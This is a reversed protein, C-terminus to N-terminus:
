EFLRQHLAMWDQKTYNNPVKRGTPTRRELVLGRVQLLTKTEAYSWGKEEAAHSLEPPFKDITRPRSESHTGRALYDTTTDLEDAIALLKGMSVNRKGNEVESLFPVSIGALDALQKQTMGRDERLQAIRKGLAINEESLAQSM